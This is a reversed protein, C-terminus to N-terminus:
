KKIFLIRICNGNYLPRHSFSSSLLPWCVHRHV